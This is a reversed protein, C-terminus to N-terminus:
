RRQLNRVASQPERETLKPSLTPGTPSPLKRGYRGEHFDNFVAPYQAGKGDNVEAVAAL